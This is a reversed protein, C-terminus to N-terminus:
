FMNILFTEKMHVAYPFVNQLNSNKKKKNRELLINRMIKGSVISEM